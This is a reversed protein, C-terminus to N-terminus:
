GFIFLRAYALKEVDISAAKKLNDVVAIQEFQSMIKIIKKSKFLFGDLNAVYFGRFQFCTVVDRKRLNYKCTLM